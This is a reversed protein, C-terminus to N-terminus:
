RRASAATAAPAAAAAAPVGFQFTVGGPAIAVKQVNHRLQFPRGIAAEPYRPLVYYDIVLDLARGSLSAGGVTVRRVDVRAMGNASQLALDVSVEHEGRLLLALLAGPPNGRATQMKGFDIIATGTASNPGLVIRPSRMGEPVERRVEEAAYANVEAPTFFVSGKPPVRDSEILLAKRKASQYEALGALSVSAALLLMTVAAVAARAVSKRADPVLEKRIISSRAGTGNRSLSALRVIGILAVNVDINAEPLWTRERM